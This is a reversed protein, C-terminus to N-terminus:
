REESEMELKMLRRGREYEREDDGQLKWRGDM